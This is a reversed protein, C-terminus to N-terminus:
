FDRGKEGGVILFSKGDHIVGHGNRANILNGLRTWKKAEEDLRAIVPTRGHSPTM